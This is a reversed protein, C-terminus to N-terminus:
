QAEKSNSWNFAFRLHKTAFIKGKQERHFNRKILNSVYALLTEFRGRKCYPPTPPRAILFFFPFM